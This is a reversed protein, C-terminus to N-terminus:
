KNEPEGITVGLDTAPRVFESVVRILLEKTIATDTMFRLKSEGIESAVVVVDTSQHDLSLVKDNNSFVDVGEPVDMILTFTEGQLVDIRAQIDFVMANSFLADIKM